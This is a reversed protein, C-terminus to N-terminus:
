DKTEKGRVNVLQPMKNHSHSNRHRNLELLGEMEPTVLAQATKKNRVAINTSSRDNIQFERQLRM